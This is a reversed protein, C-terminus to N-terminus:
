LSRIAAEIFDDQESIERAVGLDAVCGFPTGNAIEAERDRTLNGLLIVKNFGAM